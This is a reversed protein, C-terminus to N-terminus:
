DDLGKGELIRERNREIRAHRTASQKAAGFHLLYGRQRGPTLAFFAKNLAPMASLASAFEAPVAFDTTEKRQVKLGSQEVAVAELIYRRVIRLQKEIERVHTFRLQRAAQVNSTQQVLIAHPDKLPAGKHFLLACYGKFGHMLVVNKGDVSYCPHGWKLHEHLGCGLVIARLKKFADAWPSAKTFYRDVDPNPASTKV